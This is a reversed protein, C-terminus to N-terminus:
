TLIAQQQQSIPQMAPLIETENGSENEKVETIIAVTTSSGNEPHVSNRVAASQWAFFQRRLQESEHGDPMCIRM